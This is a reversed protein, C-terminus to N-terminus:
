VLMVILCVGCCVIILMVLVDIWFCQSGYYCKVIVGVWMRVVRAGVWAVLGFVFGVQVGIRGVLGFVVPRPM